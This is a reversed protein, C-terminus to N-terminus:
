SECPWGALNSVKRSASEAASKSVLSCCGAGEDVADAREPRTGPGRGTGGPWEPRVGPGQGSAPKGHGRRSPERRPRPRHTTVRIYRVGHVLHHFLLPAGPAFEKPLRHESVYLFPLPPSQELVPLLPGPGLADYGTVHGAQDLLVPGLDTMGM